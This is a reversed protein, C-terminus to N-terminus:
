DYLKIGDSFLQLGGASNHASSLIYLVTGGHEKGKRRQIFTDTYLKYLQFLLLVHIYQRPIRVEGNKGCVYTDYLSRDAM